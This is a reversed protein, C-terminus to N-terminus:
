LNLNNPRSFVAQAVSINRMYFAAECYSFYYNWKRIFSSSFGLEKVKELNSNFNSGWEALTKAYHPTMDEFDFLALTGTKRINKQLVDISPLLSGPFIHKQIFDPNKRFSKYRHDPALIMQLALIGNKKLLNHCQAFFTKYYKHGVAEIMEISVIKDFKGKLNRYDILRVKVKDNLKETTMRETAFKFQEESITVTDIHCGYTKAAYAAFGGWGSGIELVKDRPKLKLKKCLAKYKNIQAAELNDSHEKYYAASYTMTPDLFLKFFDNSLDYHEQINKRSGKISNARLAYYIKNIIKFFNVPQKKEKDDMLIPHNEVNLIMWQIVKSIDDSKWQGDIYSEAFGIDGFLVCRKFFADDLVNIQAEVDDSSGFTWKHGDPLSMSLRGRNM